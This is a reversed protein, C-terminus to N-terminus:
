HSGGSQKLESQRSINMIRTAVLTEGKKYYAIRVVDGPLLDAGVEAGQSSFELNSGPVSEDAVVLAGTVGDFSVVAGQVVEPPAGCAVLLIASVALFLCGSLFKM